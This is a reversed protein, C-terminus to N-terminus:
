NGGNSKENDNYEGTIHIETGSNRVSFEYEKDKLFDFLKKDIKAGDTIFVRATKSKEEIETITDYYQICCLKHKKKGKYMIYVGADEVYLPAKGECCCLICLSIMATVVGIVIAVVIKKFCNMEYDGFYLVICMLTLSFLMVLFTVLPIHKNESM